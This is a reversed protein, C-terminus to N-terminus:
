SGATNRRSPLFRDTRWNNRFSQRLIRLHNLIVCQADVFQRRTRAPSLCYTNLSMPGENSEIEIKNAYSHYLGVVGAIAESM